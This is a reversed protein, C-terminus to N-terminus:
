LRLLRVARLGPRDVGDVVVRVRRVGRPEPTRLPVVFRVPGDRAPVPFDDSLREGGPGVLRGSTAEPVTATMRWGLAATGDAVVDAGLDFTGPGVGRPAPQVPAYASAVRAQVGDPRTRAPPDLYLEVGTVFGSRVLPLRRRAPGAPADVGPLGGPVAPAGPFRCALRAPEALDTEVSLITTGNGPLVIDLEHWIWAGGVCRPEELEVIPRAERYRRALLRGLDDFSNALPRRMRRAAFEWVLVKPEGFQGGFWRGAVMAYCTSPAEGGMAIGEVPTGLAAGLFGPFGRAGFSDGAFLVEPPAKAAPEVETYDERWQLERALAGEPRFGAIKVLDGRDADTTRPFERYPLPRLGPYRTRVEAAVEAAVLRQGWKTWHTDNPQYLLREGKAERYLAVLDPAWLGRERLLRVFDGDREPPAPIGAALHEPYISVKSPVVLVLVDIGASRLALSGAEVWAADEVLLREMGPPERLTRTFFMWIGRGATARETTHRLTRYLVEAWYPRVADMATSGDALREEVQRALSGDHWAVAGDAGGGEEEQAGVEVPEGAFWGAGDVAAVLLVPALFGLTVAAALPRGVEGAAEGRAGDGHERM